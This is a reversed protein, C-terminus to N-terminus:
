PLMAKNYYIMVLIEFQSVSVILVCIKYICFQYMVFIENKEEKASLSCTAAKKVFLVAYHCIHPIKILNM